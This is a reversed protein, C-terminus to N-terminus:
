STLSDQFVMAIERGRLASLRRRSASQLDEGKFCVTGGGYHAGMPLLGTIASVTLSKGSGSEGVIGLIEGPSLQFSVGRVAEREIGDDVVKVRLDDVRLLLSATTTM